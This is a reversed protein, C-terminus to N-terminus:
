SRHGRRELAFITAVGRNLTWRAVFFGPLVTGAPTRKEFILRQESQRVGRAVRTIRARSVPDSIETMVKSM